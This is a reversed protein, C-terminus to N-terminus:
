RRRLYEVAIVWTLVLFPLMMTTVLLNSLGVSYLTVTSFVTNSVLLIFVLWSAWIRKMYISFAAILSVIGLFGLHPPFGTFPLFALLLAGTGVFFGTSVMKVRQIRKQKTAISM